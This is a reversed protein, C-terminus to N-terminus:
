FRQSGLPYTEAEMNTLAFCRTGRNKLERLTEISAFIEGAIMEEDRRAWAWILETHEPHQATLEACTQAVPTGRDAPAHWEPTCFEALFREMAREDDFLKRYLHRSDRDLLVGGVDFVVADVRAAPQTTVIMMELRVHLLAVGDISRAARHRNYAARRL